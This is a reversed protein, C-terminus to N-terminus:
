ICVLHSGTCGLKEVCAVGFGAYGMGELWWRGSSGRDEEWKHWRGEEWPRAM